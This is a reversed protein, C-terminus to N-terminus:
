ALKFIMLLFSNENDDMSEVLKKIKLVEENELIIDDLSEFNRQKM